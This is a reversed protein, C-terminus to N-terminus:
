QLYKKVFKDAEKEQRAIETSTQKRGISNRHGLIVHGIEHAITFRIQREKEKLLEDSLFILAEDKKLEDGRLAFAWGDDFSSIFWVKQTVKKIIDEPFILLTSCVMQKMKGSGILKGGFKQRIKTFTYNM